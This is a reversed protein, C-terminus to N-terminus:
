KMCRLQASGQIEVHSLSCDKDRPAVWGHDTMRGTEPAGAKPAGWGHHTDDAPARWGHINSPQGDESTQAFVASAVIAVAVAGFCLMSKM